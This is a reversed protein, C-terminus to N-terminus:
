KEEQKPNIFPNEVALWVPPQTQGSLISLYIRGTKQILELEEKNLEWASICQQGDTFIELDYCEEDTMSKPKGLIKNSEPFDVARM